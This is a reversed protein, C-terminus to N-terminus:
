EDLLLWNFIVNQIFFKDENGDKGFIKGLARCDGTAEEVYSNLNGGPQIRTWLDEGVDKRIQDLDLKLHIQEGLKDGQVTCVRSDWLAFGVILAIDRGSNMRHGYLMPATTNADARAQNPLFALALFAGAIIACSKMKM